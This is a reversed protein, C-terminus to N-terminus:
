HDPAEGRYRLVWRASLQDALRRHRAAIQRGALLKLGLFDLVGRIVGVPDADLDEYDVVHPRAGALAFWERWAANHAGALQVLQRIANYSFHPRQEPEQQVGRETGFWIGTQEARLWSVAQTVADGRRLYVFRTAGFARDLLDVDSGALHPYVTALSDSIKEPRLAAAPVAAAPDEGFPV